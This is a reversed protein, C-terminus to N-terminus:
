GGTPGASGRNEQDPAAVEDWATDADPTEDPSSDGQEADWTDATDVSDLTDSTDLSEMEESPPASSLGPDDATIVKGIAARVYRNTVGPAVELTVTEDDLSQVTGILGATTMVELGPALNQQVERAQQKRSRNQRSMLYWLFVLMLVLPLFLILGSGGGGSSEAALIMPTQM